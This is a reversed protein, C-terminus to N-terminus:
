LLERRADAGRHRDGWDQAARAVKGLGALIRRLHELGRVDVDVRRLRQGAEALEDFASEVSARHHALQLRDAAIQLGYAEREGPPFASRLKPGHDGCERPVLEQSAGGELRPPM